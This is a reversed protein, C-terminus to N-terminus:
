YKFTLGTQVTNIRQFRPPSFGDKYSITLAFRGSPDLNYAAALVGYARWGQVTALRLSHDKAEFVTNETAALYRPTFTGDISFRQLELLSHVIPVFRAINYTPLAQTANGVSAKVVTDILSGGVEAGTHFDLSYGWLAPKANQISWPIPTCNPIPPIATCQATAVDRAYQELTRQRQTRYLHAFYYKLDPTGMLNHRDLEKDTEYTVGPTVLLGRLFTDFRFIRSFSGGFDITDAYKIGSITNQGVDASALPIFQFGAHLGGLPPAVKGNLTWAPKSGTAASHNFNFYYNAVDKSAPAKGQALQAKTDIKVASGFVDLLGPVAFPLEQTALENSLTIFLSGIDDPDHVDRQLTEATITAALPATLKCTADHKRTSRDFNETLLTCAGNPGQSYSVHSAFEYQTQVGASRVVNVTIASDVSLNVTTPVPPASQSPSLTFVLRYKKGPLLLDSGPKSPTLTVLLWQRAGRYSVVSATAQPLPNDAPILQGTGTHGGVDETCQVLVIGASVIKYHDDATCDASGAGFCPSAFCM